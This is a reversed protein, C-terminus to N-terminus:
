AAPDQRLVDELSEADLVRLGWKDLAASGGTRIRDRAWDPLPGFRRELQRKLLAARGEQIGEQKWQQTWTEVRAALKSQM